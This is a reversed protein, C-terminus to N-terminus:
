EAEGQDNGADAVGEDPSETTVVRTPPRAAGLSRGRGRRRDAFFVRLLFVSTMSVFFLLFMDVCLVVVLVWVGLTVGVISIATFFPFRGTPFLQKLALYLYWPM